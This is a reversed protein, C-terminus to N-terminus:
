RGQKNRKCIVCTSRLLGYTPLHSYRAISGTVTMEWTNGCLKCLKLKKYERNHKSIKKKRNKQIQKANAANHPWGM